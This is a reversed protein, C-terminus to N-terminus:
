MEGVKGREYSANAAYEFKMPHHDINSLLKQFKM